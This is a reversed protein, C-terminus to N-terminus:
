IAIVEDVWMWCFTEHSGADLKSAIFELSELFDDGEELSQSSLLECKTEQMPIQMDICSATDINYKMLVENCKNALFLGIKAINPSYGSRVM